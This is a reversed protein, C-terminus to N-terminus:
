YATLKGHSAANSSFREYFADLLSFSSRSKRPVETVACTETESDHTGQHSTCESGRLM